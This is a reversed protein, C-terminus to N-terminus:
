FPCNGPRPRDVGPHGGPPILFVVDLVLPTNGENRVIHVHGPSEPVGTGAPYVHPICKPDDGHYSTATGKEVAVLVSADHSHWGGNGGPQITLKVLQLQSNPVADIKVPEAVLVDAIFEGEAHVAPSAEAPSASLWLASGGVVAAVVATIALRRSRTTHM